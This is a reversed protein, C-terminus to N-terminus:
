TESTTRIQPLGVAEPSTIGGAPRARKLYGPHLLHEAAKRAEILLKPNGSLGLRAGLGMLVAQDAIVVSHEVNERAEMAKARIAKSLQLAAEWPLELAPRGQVLLYVCGKDTRIRVTKTDDVGSAM